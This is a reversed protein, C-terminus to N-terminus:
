APGCLDRVGEPTPGTQQRTRQILTGSHSRHRKDQERARQAEAQESRDWESLPVMREHDVSVDRNRGTVGMNVNCCMHTQQSSLQTQSLNLSV